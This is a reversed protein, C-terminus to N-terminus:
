YLGHSLFISPQFLILKGLARTRDDHNYYVLTHYPINPFLRLLAVIIAIETESFFSLMDYVSLYVSFLPLAWEYPELDGVDLNRLTNRSSRPRRRPLETPLSDFSLEACTLTELDPLECVLHALDEFRRFHIQVLKINKIGRSFSRPPSRPLAFHVSRIAQHEGAFSGIISIRSKWWDDTRTYGHERWVAHTSACTQTLLHIWPFKSADKEDKRICPVNEMCQVHRLFRYTPNKTLRWLTRIREPSDNIDIREFIRPTCRRNWYRCVLRM